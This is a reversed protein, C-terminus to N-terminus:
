EKRGTSGSSEKETGKGECKKGTEDLLSNINKKNKDTGLRNYVNNVYMTSETQIRDKEYKYGFFSELINEAFGGGEIREYKLTKNKFRNDAEDSEAQKLNKTIYSRVFCYAKELVQLWICGEEDNFVADRGEVNNVCLKKSVKVYIKKGSKDYFRVIVNKGGDTEKMMNM